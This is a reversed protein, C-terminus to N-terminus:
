MPSYVTSETKSAAAMDIFPSPDRLFDSTWSPSDAAKREGLPPAAWGITPIPSGERGVGSTASQSVGLRPESGIGPRHSEVGTYHSGAGPHHSGLDGIGPYHSSADPHHSQTGPYHPSADPHHSGLDGTGPYHPSSASTPSTGRPYHTSFAGFVDPQAPVTSSTTSFASSVPSAGRTYHGPSAPNFTTSFVPSTGASFTPSFVPSGGRYVLGSETHHGPVRPIDFISAIHRGTAATPNWIVPRGTHVREEVSVQGLLSMHRSANIIGTGTMPSCGFLVRLRDSLIREVRPSDETKGISPAIKLFGGTKAIREIPPLEGKHVGLGTVTGSSTMKRCILELHRPDMSGSIQSSTSTFHRISHYVARIGVRNQARYLKQTLPLGVVAPHCYATEVTVHESLMGAFWSTSSQVPIAQLFGISKVKQLQSVCRSASDETEFFVPGKKGYIYVECSSGIAHKFGAVLDLASLRRYISTATMNEMNEDPITIHIVFAEDPPSAFIRQISVDTDRSQEIRTSANHFLDFWVLDIPKFRTTDMQFEIITSKIDEDTPKSKGVVKSKLSLLANISVSSTSVIKSTKHVSDLARQSVIEGIAMGAYMGVAAGPAIVARALARTCEDLIDRVPDGERTHRWVELGIAYPAHGYQRRASNIWSSIMDIRTTADEATSSSLRRLRASSVDTRGWTSLSHIGRERPKPSVTEGRPEPAHYGTPPISGGHSVTSSERYELPVTEGRSVPAHYGIPPMGERFDPVHDRTLETPPISGGHSVTSSGRYGTPLIGERPEPTHSVSKRIHKMCIRKPNCPLRWKRKGHPKHARVIESWAIVEGPADEVTDRINVECLRTPDLMDGGYKSSIVRGKDLVAGTVSTYLTELAMRYLRSKYGATRTGSFKSYEDERGQVAHGYYVPGPQGTCMPFPSLGRAIPRRDGPEFHPLIRDVGLVTRFDSEMRPSHAEGYVLMRSLRAPAGKHKSECRTYILHSVPFPKAVDLAKELAHLAFSAEDQPRVGIASAYFLAAENAPTSQRYAIHPSISIARFEVWACAIAHVRELALAAASFGVDISIVDFVSGPSMGFLSYFDANEPDVVIGSKVRDTVVTQIAKSLVAVGSVTHEVTAAAHRIPIETPIGVRFKFKETAKAPETFMPPDTPVPETYYPRIKAFKWAQEAFSRPVGKEYLCLSAVACIMEPTLGMQPRSHSLSRFQAVPSMMLAEAREMSTQPYRQLMADGDFDANFPKVVLPSMYVALYEKPVIRVVFGQISGPHLTPQRNHTVMDGDMLGRYISWGPRLISCLRVRNDNTVRIWRNHPMILNLICLEGPKHTEKSLAHLIDAMNHRTVEVRVGVARAFPATIGLEHVRLTPDPVIVSRTMDRGRTGLGHRRMMSYKGGVLDNIKDMYNSITSFLEWHSHTNSMPDERIKKSKKFITIAARTVELQQTAGDLVVAPRWKPEPVYVYRLMVTEFPVVTSKIGPIFKPPINTVIHEILKMDVLRETDKFYLRKHDGRNHAVTFPRYERQFKASIKERDLAWEDGTLFQTRELDNTLRAYKPYPTRRTICSIIDLFYKLIRPSVLAVNRDSGISFFLKKSRSRYKLDLTSSLSAISRLAFPHPVRISLKIYYRKDDLSSTETDFFRRQAQLDQESDVHEFGASPHIGQSMHWTKVAVIEAEM